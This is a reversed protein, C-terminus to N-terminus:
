SSTHKVVALTINTIVLISPFLFVLLLWTKLKPSRWLSVKFVGARDVIFIILTEEIKFPLWRVFLSKTYWRTFLIIFTLVQVFSSLYKGRNNIPWFCFRSILVELVNLRRFSKIRCPVCCFLIEICSNYTNALFNLVMGLNGLSHLRLGEIFSIM